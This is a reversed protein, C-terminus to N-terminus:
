GRRGQVTQFRRGVPLCEAGANLSRLVAMAAFVGMVTAYFRQRALSSAVLQDMPLMADIGVNSDARAILSRMTAMVRAPDGDTRVVFSLFGFALREQAAVPMERAQTLALLQRYDVFFQPTPEQDLRGQRMDDVVGVIQWHPLL